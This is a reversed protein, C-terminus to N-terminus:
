QNIDVFEPILSAGGVLFGDVGPQVAPGTVPAVVACVPLRRTMVSRTESMIACMEGMANAYMVGNPGAVHPIHNARCLISLPPLQYWNFARTPVQIHRATAATFFTKFHLLLPVFRPPHIARNLSLSFQCPGPFYFSTWYAHKSTQLHTGNGRPYNEKNKLTHKAPDTPQKVSPRKVRAARHPHGSPAQTLIGRQPCIVKIDENDEDSCGEEDGETDLAGALIAALLRTAVHVPALGPEPIVIPAPDAITASESVVVPAPAPDAIAPMLRLVTASVVVPAPATFCNHLLSPGPRAHTKRSMTIRGSQRPRHARLDLRLQVLSAVGGRAQAAVKEPQRRNTTTQRNVVSPM